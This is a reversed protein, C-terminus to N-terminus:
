SALTGTRKADELWARLADRVQIATNGELQPVQAQGDIRGYFRKGTQWIFAAYDQEGITFRYIQGQRIVRGQLKGM